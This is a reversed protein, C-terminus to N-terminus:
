RWFGVKRCLWRFWWATSTKGTCGSVGGRPLHGPVPPLFTTLFGQPRQTLVGLPLLLAALLIALRRGAPSERWPRGSSHASLLADLRRMSWRLLPSTISTQRASRRSGAANSMSPLESLAKWTWFFARKILFFMMSSIQMGHITGTPSAISHPTHM